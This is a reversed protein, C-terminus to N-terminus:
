FLGGREFEELGSFNIGSTFTKMDRKGIEKVITCEEPRIFKIIGNTMVPTWLRIYMKGDNDKTEDPYTIGHVMMGFSMNCNDYSGVREGFKCPEVYGQCERTGIFIDRRGGRRIMRNMIDYHKNENRDNKLDPRNENWEFHGRVEYEVNKLYTYISLDNKNDTYHIPRIGQSQTLIPNM